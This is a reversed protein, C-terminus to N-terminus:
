DQRPEACIVSWSCFPIEPAPHGSTNPFFLRGFHLGLQKKFHLYTVLVAPFLQVYIQAVEAIKFFSGLTFLPGNLSIECLGTVRSQLRASAVGNRDTCSCFIGKQNIYQTALNKTICNYMCFSPLVVFSWLIFWLTM